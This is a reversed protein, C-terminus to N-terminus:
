SFRATATMDAASTGATAVNITIRDEASVALGIDASFDTSSSPVIVTAITTGNQKVELTTDSSGATGLGVALSAIIGGYRLKAPPSETSSALAGAYSFIIEGNPGLKTPNVPNIRRELIGVRGVLDALAKSVGPPTISTSM